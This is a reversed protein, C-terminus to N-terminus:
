QKDELRQDAQMREVMKDVQESNLGVAGRGWGDYFGDQTFWFDTGDGCTFHNMSKGLVAQVPPVLTIIEIRKDEHQVRLEM